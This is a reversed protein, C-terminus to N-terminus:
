FTGVDAQSDRTALSTLCQTSLCRRLTIPIGQRMAGHTKRPPRSFSIWFWYSVALLVKPAAKNWAVVVGESNVVYAADSTGEILKRLDKKLM